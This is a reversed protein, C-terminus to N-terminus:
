PLNIRWGGPRPDLLRLERRSNRAEFVCRPLEGSSSHSIRFILRILLALDSGHAAMPRTTLMAGQKACPFRSAECPVAGGFYRRELAVAEVGLDTEIDVPSQM